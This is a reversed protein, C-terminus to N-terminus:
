RPNRGLFALFREQENADAPPEVAPGFVGEGRVAEEPLGELAAAARAVEGADLEPDAGLARGVDWRHVLVDGTIFRDVADEWRTRGFMGDFETGAVAPDDLANQVGDRVHAWARHPDADATPGPPLEQGIFGFFLHHTDVMHAVVDRATWDPCPSPNAWRPDDVPVAEVEATFDAALARYRDAIDSM